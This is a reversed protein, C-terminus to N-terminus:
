AQEPVALYFWEQGVDAEPHPFLVCGDRAARVPTGDARVGVVDGAQVSDFSHWDRVLRDDPSQRLVVDDLRAAPRDFRPPAPVRAMGLLALAGHLAHEAVDIAAPDDHQGCELTVAYGGQSRMYENTGIGDDDPVAGRALAARDYVDLWGEVVQPAGLARALAMEEAARAFPERAGSNNRPGVMAFPEGPTHFSHLDLLVDHQALLPALQQTIRDEYDQPAPQPLFRRNLNREGERTDQAFALPNAVPVLTLRGRLLQLRGQALADITRVVAHAGCVENGHVAGLVVLSPGPALAAWSQWHLTDPQAVARRM